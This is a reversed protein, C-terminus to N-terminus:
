LSAVSMSGAGARFFCIVGVNLPIISVEAHGSLVLSPIKTMVTVTWVGRSMRNTEPGGGGGGLCTTGCSTSQLLILAVMHAYLRMCTGTHRQSDM